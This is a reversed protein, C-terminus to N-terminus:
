WTKLIIFDEPYAKLKLFEHAEEPSDFEDDLVISSPRMIEDTTLGEMNNWRVSSQRVRIEMVRFKM